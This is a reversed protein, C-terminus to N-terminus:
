VCCLMEARKMTLISSKLHICPGRNIAILYRGLYKRFSLFVARFIPIPEMQVATVNLNQAISEIMQIRIRIIPLGIM